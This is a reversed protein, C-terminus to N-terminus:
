KAHEAISLCWITDRVVCQCSNVQGHTVESLSFEPLAFKVQIRNLGKHGPSPIRETRAPEILYV